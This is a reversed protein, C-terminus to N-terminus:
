TQTIDAVSTLFSDFAFKNENDWGAYLTMVIWDAMM